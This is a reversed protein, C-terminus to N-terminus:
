APFHHRQSQCKYGQGALNGRPSYHWAWIIGREYLVRQSVSFLTDATSSRPNYPVRARKQFRGLGVLVIRTSSQQSARWWFALLPPNKMPFIPSKWVIDMDAKLAPGPSLRLSRQNKNDCVLARLKAERCQARKFPPYPWLESIVASVSVRNIAM